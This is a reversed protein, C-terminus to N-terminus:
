TIVMKKNKQTFYYSAMIIIQTLLIVGVVSVVDLSFTSFSEPSFHNWFIFDYSNKPYTKVNGIMFGLMFLADFLFTITTKFNMYVLGSIVSIGMLLIIYRIMYYILYVFNNMDYNIYKHISFDNKLLLLFSFYCLFFLLLYFLNCIVINNIVEKMYNKKNKLRIIYFSFHKEFSSCTNLTNFFILAFMITNFISFQFAVFVSDIFNSTNAGLVCAAYIAIIIGIGFLLKFRETSIIYNLIKIQNRFKNKM